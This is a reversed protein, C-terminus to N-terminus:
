TIHGDCRAGQVLVEIDAREYTQDYERNRQKGKKTRKHKALSRKLAGSVKHKAAVAKCKDCPGRVEAGSLSMWADTDTFLGM